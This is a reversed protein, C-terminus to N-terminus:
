PTYCMCVPAHVASCLCKCLWVACRPNVADYVLLYAETTLNMVYDEGVERPTKADDYLLWTGSPTRHVGMYHGAHLSWGKHLMVASLKLVGGGRAALESSCHHRIDLDQKFAIAKNDKYLGCVIGDQNRNQM